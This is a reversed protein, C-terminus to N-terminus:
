NTQERNWDRKRKLPRGRRKKQQHRGFVDSELAMQKKMKSDLRGRASKAGHHARLQSEFKDVLEKAHGLSHQPELTPCWEVLYHLVGDVYEKGIIKRVEWEEDTDHIPSLKPATPSASGLMVPSTRAM